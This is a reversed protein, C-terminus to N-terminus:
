QSSGGMECAMQSGTPALSDLHAGIRSVPIAYIPTAGTATVRFLEPSEKTYIEAEDMPIEIDGPFDDPSIEQRLETVSCPLWWIPQPRIVLVHLNGQKDETLAAMAYRPMVFESGNTLLSLLLPQSGLLELESMGYHSTTAVDLRSPTKTGHVVSKVRASFWFPPPDMCITDPNSCEAFEPLYKGPRVTAVVLIPKASERDFIPFQKPPAAFAVSAYFGLASAALQPLPKAMLDLAQTLGVQTASGFM